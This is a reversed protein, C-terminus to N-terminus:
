SGACSTKALTNGSCAIVAKERFTSELGYIVSQGYFGAVSSFWRNLLVLLKESISKALRFLSALLYVAIMLIACSRAMNTSCGPSRITTAKKITKM